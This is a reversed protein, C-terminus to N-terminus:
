DLRVSLTAGGGIFLDILGLVPGRGPVLLTLWSSRGGDGEKFSPADGNVVGGLLSSLLVDVLLAILLTSELLWFGLDAFPDKM